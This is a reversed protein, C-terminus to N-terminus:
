EVATIEVYSNGNCSLYLEVHVPGTVPPNVNQNSGNIINDLSGGFNGDANDWNGNGRFKFEGTLTVNAEWCQKTTNYTMHPGTSWNADSGEVGGVMDIFEIKTLAYTMENMDVDM